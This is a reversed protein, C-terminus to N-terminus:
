LILSAWCLEVADERWFLMQDGQMCDLLAKEYEDFIPGSYDALYNFNMSVPRLSM